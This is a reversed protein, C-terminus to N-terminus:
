FIESREADVRSEVNLEHNESGSYDFLRGFSRVDARTRM